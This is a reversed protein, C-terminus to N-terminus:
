RVWAQSRICWPGTSLTNTRKRGLPTTRRELPGASTRGEKELMVARAKGKNTIREDELQDSDSSQAATLGPANAKGHTKKCKLTTVYEKEESVKNVTKHSLLYNFGCDKKAKVM